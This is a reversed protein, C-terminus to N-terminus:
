GHNGEKRPRDYLKLIGTYPKKKMKLDYKFGYCSGRPYNKQNKVWTINIHTVM